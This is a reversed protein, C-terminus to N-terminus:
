NQCNKKFNNVVDKEQKINIPRTVKLKSKLKYSVTKHVTYYSVELGYVSRLWQQIEKYSDFGEPDELEQKLKQKILEPILSNRRHVKAM